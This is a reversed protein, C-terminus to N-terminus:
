PASNNKRRKRAKSIDSILAPHTLDWTESAPNMISKLSTEDQRTVGVPTDAEGFDYDIM